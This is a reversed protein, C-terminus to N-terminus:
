IFSFNLHVLEHMNNSRAIFTRNFDNTTFNVSGYSILKFEESIFDRIFNGVGYNPKYDVEDRTWLRRPNSLIVNSSVYKNGCDIFKEGDPIEVDCVWYYKPHVWRIFHNTDLFEIGNSLKTNNLGLQYQVDNDKMDKTLFKIFKYKEECLPRDIDGSNFPITNM